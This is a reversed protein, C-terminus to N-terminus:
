EGKDKVHRNWGIHRCYGEEFILAFYGLNGYHISLQLERGIDSYKTYDKMKKLSPNFTFGSWHGHFNTILQKIRNGSPTIYVDEFTPHPTDKPDRAWVCILKDDIDIIEIAAELFGPKFFEWDEELHFVYDTKVLEYAKDISAVQGLNEENYILTLNPYKLLLHDNCGIITSDDIIIFDDLEYTNNIFFSDLTKELLDPRNCSTCVATIKKSM